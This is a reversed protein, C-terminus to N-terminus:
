FIYLRVIIKQFDAKTIIHSIGQSTLVFLREIKKKENNFKFKEFTENLPFSEPIIENIEFKKLYKGCKENKAEEKIDSFNLYGIIKDDKKVGIVDFNKNSFENKVKGITDNINCSVFEEAISMVTIKESFIDFIENM